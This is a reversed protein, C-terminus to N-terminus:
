SLLCPVSSLLHSFTMSPHDHGSQIVFMYPMDCHLGYKISNSHPILIVIYNIYTYTYQYTILIYSYILFLKLFCDLCEWSVKSLIAFVIIPSYISSRHVDLACFFFKDLDWVECLSNVEFPGCIWICFYLSKPPFFPSFSWSQFSPLFNRRSKVSFVCEMLFFLLKWM